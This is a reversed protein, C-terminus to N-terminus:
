LRRYRAEAFSYAGFCALGAAAAFLLAKGYPAAAVSHLAVDLGGAQEADHEFAAKVVLVGALGFVIGRAVYGVQGLRRVVDYTRPNIAGTKLHKEFDTKLGRWALGAGVGFVILGLAILIERGGPADLLQVTLSKQRNSSQGGTAFRLASFFFLIYFLGSVLSEIRKFTRKKDDTEERRGWAGEGLRWLGYAAFGFAALWLVAAGFPQESVKRLAGVQDAQESGGAAIQAALLGILVYVLGRAVLGVRAAKKLVDSDAARRADDSFSGDTM